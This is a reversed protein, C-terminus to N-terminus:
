PNARVSKDSSTPFIDVKELTLKISFGPEYEMTMGTIIGSPLVEQTIAYDPDPNKNGRAFIAMQLSWLHDVSLLQPNNLILKPNKVPNIVVNVDVPEDTDSSGDFVIKNPFVRNDSAAAVLSQNLHQLPFLTGVPLSIVKQVPEKYIVRGPHSPEISAEGKMFGEECGNRLTRVNFHYQQGDKSEFSAISTIYQQSVGSAYYVILESRQEFTWGDGTDMLQVTLHGRVDTVDSGSSQLYKISYEARHPTFEIRDPKKQSSGESAFVSTVALLVFFVIKKMFVNLLEPFYLLKVRLCESRFTFIIWFKLILVRSKSPM